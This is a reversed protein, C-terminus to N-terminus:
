SNLAISTGKLFNLTQKTHLYIFIYKTNINARIFIIENVYCCMVRNNYSSVKYKHEPM